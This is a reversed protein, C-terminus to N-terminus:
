EKDVNALSIEGVYKVITHNGLVEPPDCSIKKEAVSDIEACLYSQHTASAKLLEVM